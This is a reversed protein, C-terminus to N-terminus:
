DTVRPLQDPPLGAYLRASPAYQEKIIMAGDPIEGNRGGILWQMIKPSYFIRVAPHTGYYTGQFSSGTDPVGKDVCWNLRKYEGNQLYALVQKEFNVFQSPPVTTPLPLSHEMAGLCALQAATAPITMPVSAAESVPTRIASYALALLFCALVAVKILTRM